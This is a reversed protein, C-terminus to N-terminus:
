KPWGGSFLWQAIQTLVYVIAGYIARLFWKFASRIEDFGDEVAKLRHELNADKFAKATADAEIKRREEDTM